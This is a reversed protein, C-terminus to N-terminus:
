EKEREGMVIEIYELFEKVLKLLNDELTDISVEVSRNWLHAIMTVHRRYEERKDFNAKLIDRLFVYLNMHWLIKQDESYAERVLDVKLRPGKPAEKFKGEKKAFDVLADILCDFLSILRNLANRLVDVTRTYKLSVYIIHEVRKLEERAEDLYENM